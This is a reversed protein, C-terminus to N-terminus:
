LYTEFADNLNRKADSIGLLDDEFDRANKALLYANTLSNLANKRISDSTTALSTKSNNLNNQAM